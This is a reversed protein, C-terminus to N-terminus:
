LDNDTFWYTNRLETAIKSCMDKSAQSIDLAYIKKLQRVGEMAKNKIYQEKTNRNWFKKHYKKHCKHCLTIWNDIDLRIDKYSAFNYLHHIELKWWKIRCLDCTYSDRVMCNKRRIWYETSSRIKKESNTIWWQRLYSKEWRHSDWIKKRTEESHVRWMLWESIKMKHEDSLKRWRMKEAQKENYGYKKWKKPSIKWKHSESLKRRHEDSLTKWKWIWKQWKHSDSLKKKHEESLKKWKWFWESM